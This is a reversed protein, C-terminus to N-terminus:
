PRDAQPESRGASWNWHVDDDEQVGRPWGLDSRYGIFGAAFSVSVHRDILRIGFTVVALSGVVIAARADGTLFTAAGAVAAIFAIEFGLRRSIAIPPLELPEASEPLEAWEPVLDAVDAVPEARFIPSSMTAAEVVELTVQPKPEDMPAERM